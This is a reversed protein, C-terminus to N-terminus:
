IKKFKKHDRVYSNNQAVSPTVPKKYSSRRANEYIKNIIHQPKKYGLIVPEVKKDLKDGISSIIQWNDDNDNEDTEQFNIKKMFKMNLIRDSLGKNISM